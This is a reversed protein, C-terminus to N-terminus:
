ASSYATNTTDITVAFKQTGDATQITAGIPVVAQQTATFRSFTVQGTAPSASLRPFGFDACWSDLDSGVSTAARTLTLVQLVIAQLWLVVSATAEAIARLVSGVAFNMLASASGQVATATNSVIQGFTYTQLTAM